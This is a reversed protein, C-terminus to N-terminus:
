VVRISESKHSECEIGEINSYIAFNEIQLHKMTKKWLLKFCM